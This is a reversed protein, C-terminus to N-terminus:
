VSKPKMEFSSFNEHEHQKDQLVLFISDRTNIPVDTDVRWDLSIVFDVITHNM